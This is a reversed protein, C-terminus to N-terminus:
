KSNGDTEQESLAAVLKEFDERPVAVWTGIFGKENHIITNRKLDAAERLTDREVELQAIHSELKQVYENTAMEAIKDITKEAAWRPIKQESM